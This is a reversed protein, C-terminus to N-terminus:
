SRGWFDVTRSILRRKGLTPKIAVKGARYLLSRIFLTSTIKWVAMRDAFFQSLKSPHSLQDFAGSEFDPSRTISGHTRIGGRGFSTLSKPLDHLDM